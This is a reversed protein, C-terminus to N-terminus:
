YYSESLIMSIIRAHIEIGFLDPKDHNKNIFRCPTLFKDEISSDGYHEGLFGFLVIKNKIFRLDIQPNFIDKTDVIVFRNFGGEFNIYENQHNRKFLVGAKSKDYLKVIEAGFCNVIRNKSNIFLPFSRLENTYIDMIHGLRANKSFRENSTILNSYYDDNNSNNAKCALVLNNSNNLTVALLSDDITDHYDRFIADVGIVKPNYKNVIQIEKAIDIRKLTGINIIVINTDQPFKKHIYTIANFGQKIDKTCGFILIGLILYKIKNICLCINIKLM